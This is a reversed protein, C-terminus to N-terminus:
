ALGRGRLWYNVIAFGTYILRRFQITYPKRLPMPLKQTLLRQIIFPVMRSLMAFPFVRYLAFSSFRGMQYVVANYIERPPMAMARRGFGQIDPYGPHAGISVNQKAAMSVTHQMVNFDGAHFGCAINASTISTFLAEDEGITFPGYSEGVDANLDIKM